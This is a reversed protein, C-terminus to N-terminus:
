SRPSAPSRCTLLGFIPKITSGPPYQGHLARNFLPQNPSKLLADYDKKSIGDVFLNPDYGPVSAMALLEGSTPEIFNLFLNITTTKGAGNAGLMVFIEGAGVSFSAGDLALVDDEYRKTLQDAELMPKRNQSESM